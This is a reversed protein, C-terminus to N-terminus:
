QLFHEGVGPTNQFWFFLDLVFVDVLINVVASNGVAPYHFM